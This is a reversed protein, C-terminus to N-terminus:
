VSPQSAGRNRKMAPGLISVLPEAILGSEILSYKTHLIQDSRANPHAGIENQSLTGELMGAGDDIKKFSKAHLDCMKADGSWGDRWAADVPRKRRGHSRHCQMHHVYELSAGIGADM